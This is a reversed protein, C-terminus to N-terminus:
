ARHQRMPVVSAGIPAATNCFLAWDEALRRRKEFMDTRLYARETKDGVVHALALEAVESPYATQEAAWDRFTSRFGHATLDSRGMRKLLALMAMNSLPRLGRGGPFVFAGAREKHLTEVITLARTSLPVRHERRAKMREAPVIWVGADRDIETWRAGIVEGTRAVTLILFELALAAVGDQSRLRAMFEGMAKYPLAPHNKTPRVKTKAPLIGDLRGRWQAPNDGERHGRVTAWTLVTEIRGRLRSATEPTVHWIPELVKLVLGVDIAQVPLSGIVPYAYRELTSAWQAKHKANRWSSHRAAICAEACAKFTWARAEALREAARAAARNAIPDVGDSLLRRCEAAKQRADALSVDTASGLGMWREGPKGPLQFRFVWSKAAGDGDTAKSAVIQLYLGGGDAYRGPSKLRSVTLASLRQTTRVM